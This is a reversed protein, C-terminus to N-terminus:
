LGFRSKVVNFNTTVEIPTLARNYITVIPINGNFTNNNGGAGGFVFGGINVTTALIQASIASAVPTSVSVGNKYLNLYGNGWTFVYNYWGLSIPIPTSISKYVGGNQIIGTINGGSWYLYYSQGNAAGDITRSILSTLGLQTLTNPKVWISLTGATTLNLSANNAVAIYDNSANTGNFVMTGGNSSSYSPAGVFTGVNNSSSLDTWTTGTGSYSAPNAADLNLVLGSTVIAPAEFPIIPATYNNNGRFFSEQANSTFAILFLLLTLLNKM